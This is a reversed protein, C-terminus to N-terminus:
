SSPLSIDFDLPIDLRIKVEEMTRCAYREVNNNHSMRQSLIAQHIIKYQGGGKHIWALKCDSVKKWYDQVQQPLPRHFYSFDWEPPLIAERTDRILNMGVRYEPDAFMDSFQKLAEDAEMKGYHFFYVVNIEPFIRSHYPMTILIILKWMLGVHFYQHGSLTM